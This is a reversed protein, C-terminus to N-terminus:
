HFNPGGDDAASGSDDPTRIWEEPPIGTFHARAKVWGTGFGLVFVFVFGLLLITCIM